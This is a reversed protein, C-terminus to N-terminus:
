DLSLGSFIVCHFSFFEEEFDLLENEVAGVAEDGCGSGSVPHEPVVDV